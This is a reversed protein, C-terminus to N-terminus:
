IGAVHLAHKVFIKSLEHMTKRTYALILYAFSLSQRSAPLWCAKNEHQSSTLIFFHM